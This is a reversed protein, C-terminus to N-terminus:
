VSFPFACDALPELLMGQSESRIGAHDPAGANRVGNGTSLVGPLSYLRTCRTRMPACRIFVGTRRISCVQRMVTQFSRLAAILPHLGDTSVPLHNTTQIFWGDVRGSRLACGAEILFLRAYERVAEPRSNWEYRHDTLFGFWPRLMARYTDRTRVAGIGYM